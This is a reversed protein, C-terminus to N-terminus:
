AILLKEKLYLIYFIIILMLRLIFEVPMHHFRPDEMYIADVQGLSLPFIIIIEM